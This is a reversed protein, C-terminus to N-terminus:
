KRLNLKSIVEKYSEMKNKKLYDLLKKRRNLEQTALKLQVKNEKLAKQEARAQAKYESLTSRAGLLMAKSEEVRSKYEFPEIRVLMDGAKVLGGDKFMPSVEIVQGAVLTRMDADRETVIEGFTQIVSIQEEIKVDAVNVVWEREALPKPSLEPKTAQLYAAFFVAIIIVIIPTLWLLWKRYSRM